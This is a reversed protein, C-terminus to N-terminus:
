AKPSTPPWNHCKDSVERVWRCFADYLLTDVTWHDDRHGRFSNGVDFPIAAFKEALALALALAESPTVFLFQAKTEVFRRRLCLCVVRDIKPRQRTGWVSANTSASVPVKVALVPLKGANRSAFYGGEVAKIKIRHNSLIAIADQSVKKGKHSYVMVRKNTLRPAMDKFPHRIATAMLDPDIEFDESTRVNMLIPAAPAASRALLNPLQSQQPHPM